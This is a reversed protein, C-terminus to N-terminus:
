CDSRGDEHLYRGLRAELVFALRLYLRHLVIQSSVCLWINTSQALGIGYDKILKAFSKANSIASNMLGSLGTIALIRTIQGFM